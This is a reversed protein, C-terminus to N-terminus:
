SLKVLTSVSAVKECLTTIPVNSLIDFVTVKANLTKFMWKVMEVAVLSDVGYSHLPRAPDIESVASQLTKAIREVLVAQVVDAAESISHTHALQTQVSPKEASADSSSSPQSTASSTRMQALMSFRADDFYFPRGIGAAQASRATALGTPIQVPSRGPSQTTAVIASKVLAHFEPEHIGFPAEWERLYDTIGKEALVGVDCMIGLDLTISPRGQADRYRALADEYAGAAAYNAQGRSGFVGAFSSLTIFFGASPIQQHLNWTGQVKPRTSETWQAHTMREFLGDRLVMACQVVGQIPGLISTCQQVVRAVTVADAVDGKCVLVRVGHQSELEEILAGAESSEAGSRSLFCLRRAGLQVFLRALSRGLGGLGGVLLYSGSASLSLDPKILPVVDGTPFTLVLKGVHQGTQIKRFATEVQSAPYTTTPTAPKLIGARVLAMTEGLAERMLDPRAKQVHNLNFFSFTADRLFPRMDLRANDLIDKMGVEVFTGFPALCYWTQRLAEGALSNVIIDVGRDQTMRKVGAAFSLDRSNFIHDHPVGYQEHVLKRKEKTGVTAYVELGLHRALMLLAQGVGGAAAHILVSQGATARATKVLAYWATTHVLLLAAGDEFSLSDPMPLVFDGPVRHVTRHAGHALFMVRDGPSFRTESAHIRRVIGAGEFGFLRDPIQGLAVM